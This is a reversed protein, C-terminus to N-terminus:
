ENPYLNEFTYDTGNDSITLTNGNITGEINCSSFVFGDDNCQGTFSISVNPKTYTFTGDIDVNQFERTRLNYVPHNIRMLNGVSFYIYYSRNSQENKWETQNLSDPTVISNSDDDSSCATFLLIAILALFTNKM